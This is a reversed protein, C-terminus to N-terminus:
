EAFHRQGDDNVSEKELHGWIKSIGDCSDVSKISNASSKGLGIGEWWQRFKGDNFDYSGITYCVALVSFTVWWMGTLSNVTLGGGWFPHLFSITSSNFCAMCWTNILNVTPNCYNSCTLIQVSSFQFIQNFSAFNSRHSFIIPPITLLCPVM